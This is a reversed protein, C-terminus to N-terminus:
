RGKGYLEDDHRRGYEAPEDAVGEISDLPDISRSGTMGLKEGLIERVLSSLSRGERESRSKLIEYQWEDLLIQTRHM